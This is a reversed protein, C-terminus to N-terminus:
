INIRMMNIGKHNSDNHSKALIGDVEISYPIKLYKDEKKSKDAISIKKRYTLRGTDIDIKYNKIKKKFQKKANDRKAKNKISTIRKPFRGETINKNKLDIYHYIEDYFAERIILNNKYYVKNKINIKNNFKVNNKVVKIEKNIQTKSKKVKIFKNEHSHKTSFKNNNTNLLLLYFHDSNIFGINITEDTELSEYKTYLKYGEQNYNYIIINIQYIISCIAIELDGAYRSNLKIKEIYEVTDINEDSLVLDKLNDKNLRAYEYIQMRIEKHFEQTNFFAQSITRYFCNGDGEINVEKVDEFPLIDNNQKNTITSIDETKNTENGKLGNNNTAETKLIPGFKPSPNDNNYPYPRKKKEKKKFM